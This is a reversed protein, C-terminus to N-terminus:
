NARNATEREYTVGFVKFFNKLNKNKSWFIDKNVVDKQLLRSANIDKEDSLAFWNWIGIDMDDDMLGVLTNIANALKRAIKAATEPDTDKDPVFVIESPKKALIKRMQPIRMGSGMIAVSSGGFYMADMPGEFVYVRDGEVINDLFYVIQSRPVRPNLYRPSSSRDLYDRAQFYILNGNEYTPIFIRGFYKNKGTGACAPCKEDNIESAGYCFHCVKEDVFGLNYKKIIDGSFGRDTILYKLATLGQKNGTVQSTSFRKVPPILYGELSPLDIVEEEYSRDMVVRQQLRPGNKKTMLKLLTGRVDSEDIELYLGVYQEFGYYGYKYDYVFCEDLNFSLRYMTDDYFTSNVNICDMDNSSNERYDESIM